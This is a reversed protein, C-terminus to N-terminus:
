INREKLAQRFDQVLTPVNVPKTMYGDFGANIARDSDGIIAHASLALVPINQTKPDSKLRRLTAWGDMVPMSLDLMILNPLWDDQLMDLAVQGNNASRVSIGHFELTESVVEINDPEDDVLLIQWETLNDWNLMM